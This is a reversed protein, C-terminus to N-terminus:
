GCRAVCCFIQKSLDHQDIMMTYSSCLKPTIVKCTKRFIAKRLFHLIKCGDGDGGDDNDDDDEGVGNLQMPTMMMAMTMTMKMTADEEDGHDCSGTM